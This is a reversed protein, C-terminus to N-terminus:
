ALDRLFDPPSALYTQCHACAASAESVPTRCIPCPRSATASKPAPPALESAELIRMAGTDSLSTRPMGSELMGDCQPCQVPADSHNISVPVQHGSPCAVFFTEM